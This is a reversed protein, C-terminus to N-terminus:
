RAIRQRRDRDVRGLHQPNRAPDTRQFRALVAIHRHVITVHKLVGRVAHPRNDIALNHKLPLPSPTLPPHAAPTHRTARHLRPHPQATLLRLTRGSCPRGFLYLHASQTTAHIRQTFARGAIFLAQFQSPFIFADLDGLHDSGIPNPPLNVWGDIWWRHTREHPSTRRVLAGAAVRACVSLVM